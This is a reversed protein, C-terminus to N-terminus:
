GRKLRYFSLPLGVLVALVPYVIGRRTLASKDARTLVLKYFGGPDRDASIIDNELAVWQVLATLFQRNGYFGFFRNVAIDATGVAGIRTRALATARGTGEVRAADSVAALLFPGKEASGPVAQVWSKASSRALPSVYAETDPVQGIPRPNPVVVPINEDDLRVVVPSKSPYDFTVVSAPDEAISSLDRVVESGFSMGFGRTLENLQERPGTLGDALIVLRGNDRAYASVAGMEGALFDVRPGAVVVVACRRLEDAGGTGALALPRVDYGLQGLQGRLGSLGDPGSDDISREGHGITFCARPPDPRSLRRLASTLTVQGLDGLVERRGALEVVYKNYETIGAQRALGPQTEPDVTRVDIHAGAARYMRVAKRLQTEEASIPRIFATLRIGDHIRGVVDRTVPTITNRKAATLDVDGDLREAMAPTAVVAVVAVTLSVGRRVLSSLSPGPRNRTLAGIALWVGVASVVVFYAVDGLYLVGRPFSEFHATPAFGRVADRTWGPAYELIWLLLLLGFGVFAAATPSSTRASVALALASFAMALLLMGVFGGATRAMDLPALGSLIRAYIWVVSILVWAFLTNAVFKGFVLGTRSLPWSLTLDLTGNRREEAFSRMAVIPVLVILTSAVNSYYQKLDPVQTSVLLNVFFVGSLVLYAAAIAYTQPLVVLARLERRLIAVFTV